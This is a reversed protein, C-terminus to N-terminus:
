KYNAATAGFNADWFGCKPTAIEAKIPVSIDKNDEINKTKPDITCKTDVM